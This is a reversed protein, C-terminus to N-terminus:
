LYMLAALMVCLKLMKGIYLHDIPEKSRERERAIEEAWERMRCSLGFFNKLM